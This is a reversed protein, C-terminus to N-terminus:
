LADAGGAVARVQDKKRNYLADVSCVQERVCDAILSDYGHIETVKERPKAERMTLYLATGDTYRIGSKIIDAFRAPKTVVQRHVVHRQASTYGSWTGELIFRAM